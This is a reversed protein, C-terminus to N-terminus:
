VEGSGKDFTQGGTAPQAPGAWWALLENSPKLQSDDASQALVSGCVCTKGSSGAVAWTVAGSAGGRGGAAAAAM